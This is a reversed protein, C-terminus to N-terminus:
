KKKGNKWNTVNKNLTKIAKVLAQKPERNLYQKDLRVATYWSAGPRKHQFEIEVYEPYVHNPKIALQEGPELTELFESITM